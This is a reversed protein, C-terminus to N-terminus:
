RGREDGGVEALPTPSPAERQWADPISRIHLDRQPFPIEIGREKFAHWAAFYIESRLIDPFHIAERTAVRLDFDLSSDGFGMFLVEPAPAELIRPNAAAIAMLIQRVEEVDSGYSVGIRFRFRVMRDQNSLNVVRNRVLESNPLLIQLNENTVVLTVRARIERVTGVLDSLQIRDGVKIPREFLLILGSVFNDANHQLGFGIGVGIAGLAVMLSSLDLGLLPLGILAAICWVVYGAIRASAYRAGEDLHTRRLVAGVFRNRVLRATLVTLAVFGVLKLIWAATITAKGLHLLPANLTEVLDDLVEIHPASIM